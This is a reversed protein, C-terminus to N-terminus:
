KLTDAKIYMSAIAEPCVWWKAEYMAAKGVMAM